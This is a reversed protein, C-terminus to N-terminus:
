LAFNGRLPSYHFTEFDEIPPVCGSSYASLSVYRENQCYTVSEGIDGIDGISDINDIGGICTIDILSVSACESKRQM